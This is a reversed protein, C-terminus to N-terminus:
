SNTGIELKECTPNAIKFTEGLKNKSEQNQRNITMKDKQRAQSVHKRYINAQSSTHGTVTATFCRQANQFAERIPNGSGYILQKLSQAVVQRAIHKLAHQLL